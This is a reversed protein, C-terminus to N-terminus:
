IYIRVESMQLGIQTLDPTHSIRTITTSYKHPQLQLVFIFNCKCMQRSVTQCKSDTYQTVTHVM